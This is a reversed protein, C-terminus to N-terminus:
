EDKVTAKVTIKIVKNGPDNTYVYITKISEGPRMDTHFEIELQGSGGAPM